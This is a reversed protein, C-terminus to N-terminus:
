GRVDRLSVIHPVFNKIHFFIVSTSIQPLLVFAIWFLNWMIYIVVLFVTQCKSLAAEDILWGLRENKRVM